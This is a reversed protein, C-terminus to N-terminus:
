PIDETITVRSFRVRKLNDKILDKPLDRLYEAKAERRTMRVCTWVVWPTGRSPTVIPAWLGSSKAQKM